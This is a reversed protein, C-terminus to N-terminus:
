HLRQDRSSGHDGHEGHDFRPGAEGRESPEVGHEREQELIRAEFRPEGASARRARDARRLM